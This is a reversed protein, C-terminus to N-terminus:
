CGGSGLSLVFKQRIATGKANEAPKWKPMSKFADLVLQDVKPDASTRYIQTDVIQGQEDVSFIIAVRPLNVIPSAGPIQDIVHQKLYETMQLSGGPYEAEKDPTPSVVYEIQEIKDSGNAFAPKLRYSIKIVIVTNPDASNLVDKQLATLTDSKSTAAMAEAAQDKIEVSVYDFFRHYLANEYNPVVDALLKAARLAEKKVIAARGGAHEYSFFTQSFSNLFFFSLGLTLISSKM